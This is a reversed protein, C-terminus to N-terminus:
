HSPRVRSESSSLPVYRRCGGYVFATLVLAGILWADTLYSLGRGLRTGEPCEAACVDSDSIAVLTENGLAMGFAAQHVEESEVFDCVWELAVPLLLCGATFVCMPDRGYHALLYGAGLAVLGAAGVDGSLSGGVLKPMLGTNLIHEM